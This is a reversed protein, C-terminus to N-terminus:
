SSASQATKLAELRRRWAPDEDHYAAIIKIVADVNDRCLLLTNIGDSIQNASLGPIEGSAVKRGMRIVDFALPSFRAHTKGRITLSQQVGHSLFNRLNRMKDIKKSIGKWPELIDQIEKKESAIQILANEVIQCRADFSTPSHYIAYAVLSNQVNLITHLLGSLASELEAFGNNFRHMSAKIAEHEKGLKAVEADWHRMEEITLPQHPPAPHAARFAIVEPDDEPLPEAETLSTGDPQPQPNLSLGTIHGRHSRQVYPVPEGMKSKSRLSTPPQFAVLRGISIFCRERGAQQPTFRRMRFKEPAQLFNPM